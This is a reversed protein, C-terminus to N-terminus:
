KLPPLQRAARMREWSVVYGDVTDIEEAFGVERSWCSTPIRWGQKGILKEDLGHEKALATWVDRHEKVFDEMKVSKAGPGEGTLGFHACLGPWVQSWSVTKGDAMNFVAGNGCKEPNLAAYIEMKSLIDQFTDSHTSHYGHEYGPFPVSAGAGKVARYISLYLGIGQAM